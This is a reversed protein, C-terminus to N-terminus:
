PRNEFGADIERLCREKMLFDVLRRIETFCAVQSGGCIQGISVNVM